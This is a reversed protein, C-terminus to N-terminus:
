VVSQRAEQLPEGAVDSKVVNMVQARPDRVVSQFLTVILRWKELLHRREADPLTEAARSKSQPVFLVALHDSEVIGTRVRGLGSFHGGSGAAGAVESTQFPWFFWFLRNLGAFPFIVGGM